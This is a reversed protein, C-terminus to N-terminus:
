ARVSAPALRAAIPEAIRRVVAWAAIAALTGIAAGAAIDGPFHVGAFVRALGIVVAAAICAVGWRPWALAAVVAGAFAVTAHDSPFSNDAAHQMLLVTDHDHVFPRAENVFLGSVMVVALAIALALAGAAAVEFARRRDRRLEFLGLALICAGLVFIGDNALFVALQDLVHSKGAAGNIVDLLTENM